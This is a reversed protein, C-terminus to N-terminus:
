YMYTNKKGMGKCQLANRKQSIKTLIKDIIIMKKEFVQMFSNKKKVSVEDRPKKKLQFWPFCFGFLLNISVYKVATLIRSGTVIATVASM